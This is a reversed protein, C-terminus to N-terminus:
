MHERCRNIEDVWNQAGALTWATELMREGDTFAVHLMPLRGIRGAFRRVTDVSRINSLPIRLRKDPAWMWFHLETETLVLLGNGRLAVKEGPFAACSAGNASLVVVAGPNAFRWMKESRGSIRVIMWILLSLVVIGFGVAIVAILWPSSM